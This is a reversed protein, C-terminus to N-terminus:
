GAQTATEDLRAWSSAPMWRQFASSPTRSQDLGPYPHRPLVAPVRQAVEVGARQEVGALGDQCQALVQPQSVMAIQSCHTSMTTPGARASMFREAEPPSIRDQNTVLYFDSWPM